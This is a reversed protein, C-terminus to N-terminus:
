NPTLKGDDLVKTKRNFSKSPLPKEKGSEKLAKLFEKQEPQLKHADANPKEDIDDIDSSTAEEDAEVIM